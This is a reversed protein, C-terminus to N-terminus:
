KYLKNCNICSFLHSFYGDLIHHQTEFGRGEPCEYEGMAM